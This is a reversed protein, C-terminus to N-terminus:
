QNCDMPSFQGNMLPCADAKKRAVTNYQRCEARMQDGIAKCRNYKSKSCGGSNCNAHTMDDSLQQVREMHHREEGGYKDEAEECKKADEEMKQAQDIMSDIDGQSPLNVGPDGFEPASMIEGDLRGGDFVAGSATSAFEAPCTGPDCNGPPPAAAISYARGEALQYMATSRGSGIRDLARNMRSSIKRFSKWGLKGGAKASLSRGGTQPVSKKDLANAMMGEDSSAARAGSSAAAGGKGNNLSEVLRLRGRDGLAGIDKIGGEGFEGAMANKMLGGELEGDGLAVGEEMKSADEPRLVGDVSEGAGKGVGDYYREDGDGAIDKGGRIMDTSSKGYGAAGAGDRGFLGGGARLQRRARAARLANALQEQLFLSDGHGLGSRFGLKEMVRGAFPFRSLVSAPAMFVFSLLGILVLLPGVGRGRQFFLLLSALLGKKKNKKLFQSGM